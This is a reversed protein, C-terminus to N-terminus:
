FLEVRRRRESAVAVVKSHMDLIDGGKYAVWDGHLANSDLGFIKELNTSGMAIADGKSIRGGAELAAWALDFRANRAEWGEVVGLGVTVNHAVLTSILTERSLPPGPLIRRADWSMPFSRVPAVVVGVNAAAIEKALIHAEMGGFFAVKLN